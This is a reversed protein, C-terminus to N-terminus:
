LAYDHQASRRDARRREGGSSAGGGFPLRREEARRDQFHRYRCECHKLNCGPLPLHPAEDSLFRAEGLQNVAGCAFWGPKVAVCHYPNKSSPSEATASDRQARIRQAAYVSLGALIVLLIFWLM